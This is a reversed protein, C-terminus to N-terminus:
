NMVVEKEQERRKERELIKVIRPRNYRQIIIFQSDFIMAALATIFFIWFEGWICAFLITTLSIIENIWHDVESKTMTNVIQELSNDKLSFTEPNYTLAKGKWEKVRLFKYLSKEFKREKFLWQKYNIHKKFLKSVNGMIIRVWFHYMITFSTIGVWLIIENKYINRYYLIFCIISTILTLGIVSYMFIAPGSKKNKKVEDKIEKNNKRENMNCIKKSIFYIAFSGVFIAFIYILLYLVFPVSQQIVDFVPLSSKFYPSIYFMNFTEGNLIGMNYIIANLLEALLVFVLFVKFAGKFSEKSIKIAKTMLIYTSIVFSGCHLWMTHINILTDSTFCSNPIIITLLGGLITVFAMYSLLSNRLKSEKLFLCIISVFIPTTCLQFPAAYWQYDWTVIKTIEDYNFSWILQKVIEFILAVIGYVGLVTKLQKNSYKNKVKFLVLISIITFAIWMLHFWGYPEPTNMEIQLIYLIKEFINM